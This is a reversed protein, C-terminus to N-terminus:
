QGREKKIILYEKQYHEIFVDVVEKRWLKICRKGSGAVIDPAPFAAHNKTFENVASPSRNKGDVQQLMQSIEKNTVYENMTSVTYRVKKKSDLKNYGSERKKSM